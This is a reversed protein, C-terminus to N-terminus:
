KAAYESQIMNIHFAVCLYDYIPMNYFGFYGWNQDSKTTFNTKYFFTTCEIKKARDIMEVKSEVTFMHAQFLYGLDYVKM